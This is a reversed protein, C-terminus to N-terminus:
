KSSALKDLAARIVKRSESAEIGAVPFRTKVPIGRIETIGVSKLYKVIEEQREETPVSLLEIQDLLSVGNKVMLENSSGTFSSMASFSFPANNARSGIKGYLDNNFAYSSTRRLVLPNVYISRGLSEQNQRFYSFSASGYEQDTNSSLGNKSIGLIRIREETSKSGGTKVIRVVDQSSNKLMAGPMNKSLADAESVDFRNWYPKGMPVDPQTLDFHDFQPLHQGQSVFSDIQARSTITSFASRWMELEAKKDKIRSVLTDIQNSGNKPISSGATAAGKKLSDWFGEYQLYGKDIKSDKRSNMIGALHRWYFLEMDQENAPTLQLGMSALQEHIRSISAAVNSTAPIRYRLLGQSTLPTSTSNGRFEITEGTPLQVVYAHGPNGQESGTLSSGGIVLDGSGDLGTVVDSFPVVSSSFSSEEPPIFNVSQPSSAVRKYVKVQGPVDVAIDKKEPVYVYRPFDGQAYNEWLPFATKEDKLKTLRDIQDLYSKIMEKNAKLSGIDSVLSDLQKADGIQEAHEIAELRQTMDEKSTKMAALTSENYLGDVQHRSITRAAQSISKHFQEEGVPPKGAVPAEGDVARAKLWSEMKGVVIGRVKGEARMTRAGSSDADYSLLLHSDELHTGAYFASTGYSKTLGAADIAEPTFGLHVTHGQGNELGSPFSVQPKQWGAKDYVKTWLGDVQKLLSNKRDLAAQIQKEKSSGYWATRLAFAKELVERMASDSLKQMQQARLMAATYAQDVSSQSIEHGAVAEYFKTYVLQARTDASSDGSLGAWHGYNYFSRGKDIGVLGGDSTLLLNAGHSDDNDLAWDLVHEQALENLQRQTLKSKFDTGKFGLLSGSSDVLRQAQGSKGGYTTLRSQATKFGWLQGLTHAEHEQASLFKEGSSPSKFIWKAGHQDLVGVVPHTSKFVPSAPDSSFVFTDEPNELSELHKQVAGALDYLSADAVSTSLAHGLDFDVAYFSLASKPWSLPALKSEMYFEYPSTPPLNDTWQPASTLEENGAFFSTYAKSSLGDVTIKDGVRHAIVWKRRDGMSLHEPYQTNASILYNSVEALSPETGISFWKGEPLQGAPTEGKLFAAWQIRHTDKNAPAGPHQPSVQSVKSDLQFVRKMDGSAFANIWSRKDSNSLEEADVGLVKGSGFKHSIVSIKAELSASDSPMSLLPVDPLQAYGSTPDFTFLSKASNEGLSVAVASNEPVQETNWAHLMDSIKSKVLSRAQSIGWNPDVSDLYGYLNHKDFNPALASVLSVNTDSLNTLLGQLDKKSLAKSGGLFYVHEPSIGPVMVTTGFDDIAKGSKFVNVVLKDDIDASNGSDLILSGEGSSHVVVSGGTKLKYKGPQPHAALESVSTNKKASSISVPGGYHNMGAHYNALFSKTTLPKIEGKSNVYTAKGADGSLDPEVVIHAKGGPKSYKGPKLVYHGIWVKAEDQPIPTLQGSSHASSIAEAPVRYPVMSGGGVIKWEVKDKELRYISGLKPKGSEAVSGSPSSVLSLKGEAILSEVTEPSRTVGGGVYLADGQPSVQFQAPVGGIKATYLGPAVSVKTSVPEEEKVPTPPSLSSFLSKMGEKIVPYTSGSSTTVEGSGDKFVKLKASGSATGTAYQYLGPKPPEYSPESLSPGLYKASSGSLFKKVAEPSLSAGDPKAAGAVTYVGTGNANVHLHWGSGVDYVGPKIILGDDKEVLVPKDKLATLESLKKELHHIVAPKAKGEFGSAHEKFVVSKYDMKALPHNADALPLAITIGKYGKLAALASKVQDATVDVGGVNVVPEGPKAPTVTPAEHEVGLVKELHHVVAAKTVGKFGLSKEHKAIAYYDMASLPNGVQALPPKVNFKPSAKLTDLAHQIQDKTASVGGIVHGVSSVPTEAPSSPKGEAIKALVDALVKKDRPMNLLAEAQTPTVLKVEETENGGETYPTYDSSLPSGGTRVGVYYRTVSQTGKYDGVFGTIKALLGSEEFVERHASQQPTLKDASEVTGKPFTHVYGAHAGKPKVIWLKDTGPETVIIGTAFHQGISLHPLDPEDVPVDPIASFDPLKSTSPQAGSGGPIPKEADLVLAKNAVATNLSESLKSGAESSHNFSFTHWHGDATKVYKVTKNRSSPYEGKGEYIKAGSPAYGVISGYVWIPTKNPGKEHHQGLHPHAIIPSGIPEGYKKAGESTQVHKVAFNVIEDTVSM